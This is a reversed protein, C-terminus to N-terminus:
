NSQEVHFIENAAIKHTNRQQTIDCGEDWTRMDASDFIYSVAYTVKVKRYECM